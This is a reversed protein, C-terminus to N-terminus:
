QRVGRLRAAGELARIRAALEGVAAWLLPVLKAHDVSQYAPSGDDQVGDKTGTVADPAVAQLEHALFGQVRADGRLDGQSKASAISLDHPAEKFAFEVAAVSLVAAVAGRLPTVDRKLRYDSATSYLLAGGSSLTINGLFTGAGAFFSVLDGIPGNRRVSVVSNGNLTGTNSFHAVGTGTSGAGSPPYFTVGDRTNTQVNVPGAPANASLSGNLGTRLVYSSGVLLGVSGDGLWAIGDMFTNDVVRRLRMEASPWDNGASTRVGQLLVRDLNPTLEGLSAVNRSDGAATGLPQAQIHLPAEAASDGVRFGPTRLPGTMPVSGDRPVLANALVSDAASRAAAEAADAASRAAAENTVSAAVANVQDVRAADTADTGAGVAVLKHGGMPLDASMGGKGSRSLSDTAAAALDALNSNVKASVAKTGATFPAEPLTYAGSVDRPM